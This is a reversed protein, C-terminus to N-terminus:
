GDDAARAAQALREDAWNWYAFLSNPGRPVLYLRLAGSDPAPASLGGFPPDVSVSSGREAETGMAPELTLFPDLSAKPSSRKPRNRTSKDSTKHRSRSSHRPATKRSTM